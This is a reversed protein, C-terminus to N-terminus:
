GHVRRAVEGARKQGVDGTRELVRISVRQLVVLDVGGELAGTDDLVALQHGLVVPQLLLHRAPTSLVLERGATHGHGLLDQKQAATEDSTRRHIDEELARVDTENNRAVVGGLRLSQGTAALIDGGHCKVDGVVICKTSGNLSGINDNGEEGCGHVGRNSLVADLVAAM